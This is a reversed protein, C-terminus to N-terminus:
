HPHTVKALELEIETRQLHGKGFESLKGQGAIKVWNELTSKLLSLRGSAEGPSSYGM